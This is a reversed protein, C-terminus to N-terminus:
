DINESQLHLFRSGTLNLSKGLIFDVATLKELLMVPIM